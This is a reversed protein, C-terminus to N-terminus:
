CEPGDGYKIFNDPTSNVCNWHELWEILYPSFLWVGTLIM